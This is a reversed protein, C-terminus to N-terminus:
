DHGILAAAARLRPLELMLAAPDTRRAPGALAVAGTAVGRPDRAAVAVAVVGSESEEANIAWGKRRVPELRRRLEALRCAPERETGPVGLPYLGSLTEEPLEALLVKGVSTVHAPLLWGTRPVVADAGAGAVGAVFRAGNGERVALQATLGSARALSLLHGKARAADPRATDTRLGLRPSGRYVRRHDQEAYGHDKLRGLLRHATSPAVGLVDAAESVRLSGREALAAILRLANDVSSTADGLRVVDTVSAAETVAVQAAQQM